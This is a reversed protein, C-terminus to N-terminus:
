YYLNRTARGSPIISPIDRLFTSASDATKHQFFVGVKTSAMDWQNSFTTEFKRTDKKTWSCPYIGELDHCSLMREGLIFHDAKWLRNLGLPNYFSVIVTCRVSNVRRVDTILENMQRGSYLADDFFVCHKITNNHLEHLFLISEPKRTLLPLAWSTVWHNSKLVDPVVDYHIWVLNSRLTLEESSKGRM